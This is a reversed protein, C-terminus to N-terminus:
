KQTKKIIFNSLNLFIMTKCKKFAQKMSQLKNTKFSSLDLGPLSSCGEFANDMNTIQSSNFNDFIIDELSSCNFFTSNMRVLNDSQIGSLDIKSLYICDKFMGEITNLAKNITIKFTLTGTENGEPTYKYDNIKQELIRFNKESEDMKTVKYGDGIISPNFLKIEKKDEVDFITVKIINEVPHTPITTTPIPDTINEKDQKKKLCAILVIIIIIIALVIITAILIIKRNDKSNSNNNNNNNLISGDDEPMSCSPFDIDEPDERFKM